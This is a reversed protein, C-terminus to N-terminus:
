CSVSSDEVARWPHEPTGAGPEDYCLVAHLFCSEDWGYSAGKHTVSNKAHKGCCSCIWIQGEPAEHKQAFETLNQNDM